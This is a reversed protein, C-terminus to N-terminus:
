PFCVGPFNGPRPTNPSCPSPATPVGALLQPLRRPLSGWSVRPWEVVQLSFPTDRPCARHFIRGSPAPGACGTQLGLDRGEFCLRADGRSRGPAESVGPLHGGHAGALCPSVPASSMWPPPVPVDMSTCLLVQGPPSTGPGLAPRGRRCTRCATPLAPTSLARVAGQLFRM